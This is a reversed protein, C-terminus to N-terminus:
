AQVAVLVAHNLNRESRWWPWRMCSLLCPMLLMALLLLLLLLLQPPHPLLLPLLPCLQFAVGALM